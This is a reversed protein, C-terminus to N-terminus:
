RVNTQGYYIALLCFLDEESQAYIHPVGYDDRYIEVPKKVGAALRGSLVPLSRHYVWWGLGSAAALSLVLLIILGSLVKRWM